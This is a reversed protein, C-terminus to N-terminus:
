HWYQRVSRMAAPALLLPLPGSLALSLYAPLPALITLCSQKRQCEVMGARTSIVADQPMLRSEATAAYLTFAALDENGLSDRSHQLLLSALSSSAVM